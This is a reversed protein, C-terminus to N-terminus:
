LNTQNSKALRKGAVMGVIFVAIGGLFIAGGTACGLLEDFIQNETFMGTVRIQVTPQTSALYTLDTANTLQLELKGSPLSALPGLSWFAQDGSLAAPELSTLQVSHIERGSQLIRLSIQCPIKPYEKWNLFNTWKERFEGVEACRLLVEYKQSGRVTFQERLSAGGSLPLATSFPVRIQYRYYLIPTVWVFLGVGMVALGIKSSRTM